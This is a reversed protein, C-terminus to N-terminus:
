SKCMSNSTATPSRKSMTRSQNTANMQTKYSWATTSLKKATRKLGQKWSKLSLSPRPLKARYISLLHWYSCVLLTQKHMKGVTAERLAIATRCLHEAESLKRKSRNLCVVLSWASFVTDDHDIGLIIQRERLARRCCLEAESYKGLM